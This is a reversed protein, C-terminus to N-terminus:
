GRLLSKRHNDMLQHFGHLEDLLGKMKEKVEMQEQDNAPFREATTRVDEFSSAYNEPFLVDAKDISPCVYDAIKKEFVHAGLVQSLHNIVSVGSPAFTKAKPFHVAGLDSFDQKVIREIGHDLNLIKM